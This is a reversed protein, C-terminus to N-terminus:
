RPGETALLVVIGDDNINLAQQADRGQSIKSIAALTAASCPGVHLGIDGLIRRSTEAETDSVTISADVGGRLLPWAISSITGCNMGCMSTEGTSITILQGKELSTKLCAATEPEVTLIRSTAERCKYYSVVAQALSGVGVPVVIIDPPKGILEVTQREIEVMM